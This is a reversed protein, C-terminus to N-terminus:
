QDHCVSITLHKNFLSFGAYAIVVCQHSMELLHTERVSVYKDKNVEPFSFLLLHFLSVYSFNFGEM